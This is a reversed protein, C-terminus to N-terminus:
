SFDDFKLGYCCLDYFRIGLGGLIMFFHIRSDHSIWNGRFNIKASASTRCLWQRPRVLHLLNKPPWANIFVPTDGNKQSPMSEQGIKTIVYQTINQPSPSRNLSAFCAMWEMHDFTYDGTFMVNPEAPRAVSGLLARHCRSAHNWRNRLVFRKREITLKRPKSAHNHTHVVHFPFEAGAPHFPLYQAKRWDQDIISCSVLEANDLDM